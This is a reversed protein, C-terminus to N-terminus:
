FKNSRTCTTRIVLYMKLAVLYRVLAHGQHSVLAQQGASVSRFEAISFLRATLLIDRIDEILYICTCDCKCKFRGLSYGSLRKQQGTDSNIYEM